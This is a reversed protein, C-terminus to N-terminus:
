YGGLTPPTDEDPVSAGESDLPRIDVCRCSLGGRGRGECEGKSDHVGRLSCQWRKAPRWTMWCIWWLQIMKRRRGLFTARDYAGGLEEDSSYALHREIVELDSGLLERILPRARACFGHSEFQFRFEASVARM